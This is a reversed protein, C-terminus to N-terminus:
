LSNFVVRFGVLRWRNSPTGHNRVAVRCEDASFAWSGGRIVRFSGTYPGTPDVVSASSFNDYWDSTWEGVNGSMDHIGLENAKKQGVPQTGFTPINDRYWGVANLDNSGSYIFSQSKNGGRAAFEFEAETPLRGSVAEAFAVANFWTVNEVPNNPNGTFGSPNNGMVTEYQAQTIPYKSIWFGQRLTVRREIEGWGNPTVGLLEEIVSTLDSDGMIFSGAGVFVVEISIGGRQIIRVAGSQDNGGNNSNRRIGDGADDSCALLMFLLVFMNGCFLSKFM